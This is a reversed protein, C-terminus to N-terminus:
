QIYGLSRLRELEEAGLGKGADADSPLRQKLTRQRWGQILQALRAVEQPHQAAVDTRNLPDKRHDYLEYEPAGAPRKENYILKWGEHVVAFSQTDRPPPGLVDKVEAKESFAPRRWSTGDKGLLGALSAGQLGEPARLGSLDLLTPMLDITQVTEEVVTGAPIRGPGWLLLPVNTLEGYVSQGHFMRGHDLFEEGHDAVVAVLTSDDLGLSRLHSMLRGIEYDLGRISGDYWDRNQKVFADPDVGAAQLEARSPMGVMQLLPEAILPRVAAIQEAYAAKGAPDAYWTDYPRFSEYPFHPDFLHLFVFFPVDRHDELWPLLRDVYERATKSTPRTTLSGSEHLEEFGQHLNSVRGTFFVSSMSLTAYGAKRYTEAVTEASAPLRDNFDVVGHSAPYLSTLLSPIAAKTWTAESQADRFLAGEQALRRLEPATERNHGYVDLHDRRLTDTVIFIVGQPREAQSSEAVSSRVTPAGWFGLAGERSGAVSLALTVQRGAWRSLDLRLPEWRNPATVTRQLVVEEDKEFRGEPRVAVRFTVPKEEVTGVALDLWARSPLRVPVQVVEPARAVLTERYIEGLGQWSVGAPVAALHDRRLVLRVSEIEFEAGAVDTPRVLIHRTEASETIYPSPLVYTRAEGGAVVPTAIRWPLVAARAPQSALDIEEAPSYQIALNSGASVRLTVELAQVMDPDAPPTTALHLVPFDTTTRGVLRGGRVALGEVGPGAEWGYTAAQPGGAPLPGDFRWLTGVGKTDAAPRQPTVMEPKFLDVIRLSTATEGAPGSPSCGALAAALVLASIRANRLM